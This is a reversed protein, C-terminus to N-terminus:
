WAQGIGCTDRLLKTGAATNKAPFGYILEQDTNLLSIDTAASFADLMNNSAKMEGMWAQDGLGGDFYYADWKQIFSTEDPLNFSLLLTKEQGDTGYLRPLAPGFFMLNLIGSEAATENCSINFAFEHKQVSLTATHLGQPSVEDHMNWTQANAGAAFLIGIGWACIKIKLNQGLTM